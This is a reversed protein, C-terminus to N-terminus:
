EAGGAALRKLDMTCAFRLDAVLSLADLVAGLSNDQDRSDGYFIDTAAWALRDAMAALEAGHKALEAPPDAAAAVDIRVLMNSRGISHPESQPHSHVVAQAAIPQKRRATM